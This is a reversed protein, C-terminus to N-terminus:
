NVSGLKNWLEEIKKEHKKEIYDTLLIKQDKVVRNWDDKNDLIRVLKKVTDDVINESNLRQGNDLWEGVGAIDTYLVPVGAEFAELIIMGFPEHRSPVIIASAEEFMSERTFWNEYGKNIAYLDRKTSSVYGKLGSIEALFHIKKSDHNFEILHTWYTYTRHNSNPTWPYPTAIYGQEYFEKRLLKLKMDSYDGTFEHTNNQNNYEVPFINKIEIYRKNNPEVEIPKNLFEENPPKVALKELKQKYSIETTDGYMYFTARDYIKSTEKAIELFIDPGKQWSLRGAFLIKKTEFAGFITEFSKEKSITNPIVAVKSCDVYYDNIIKEKTVESPAVIVDATQCARKEIDLVSDSPKRNRQNETSHFHAIWKKRFENKLFEATQFTIWDHAHILDFHLDLELIKKYCLLSFREISARSYHLYPNNGYTSPTGARTDKYSSIVEEEIPIIEVDFGFIDLKLEKEALPVMVFIAAGNKRLNIIMHYVATWLGGIVKPPFETLLMLVKKGEPRPFYNRNLYEKLDPDLNQINWKNKILKWSIDYKSIKANEFNAKDLNLEEVKINLLNANKFNARTCNSFSMDAYQLNTGQLDVDTFNIGILKANRFDVNKLITNVFSIQNKTDSSFVADRFDFGSLDVPQKYRSFELVAQTLTFGQWSVLKMTQPIKGLALVFVNVFAEEVYKSKKPIKAVSSLALTIREHFEAKESELFPILSIISAAKIHDEEKLIGELLKNLLDSNRDYREKVKANMFQGFAIWGGSFAVIITIATGFNSFLTQWFLLKKDNEIKLQVIEQRTKEVSADASTKISTLNKNILRSSKNLQITIALQLVLISVIIGAFILNYVRITSIAIKM